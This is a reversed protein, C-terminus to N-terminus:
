SLSSSSASRMYWSTSSFISLRRRALLNTGENENGRARWEKTEFYEDRKKSHVSVSTRGLSARSCCSRSSYSFFLGFIWSCNASRFRASPETESSSHAASGSTPSMVPLAFRARSARMAFARDYATGSLTRDAAELDPSSSVDMEVPSLSEPVM